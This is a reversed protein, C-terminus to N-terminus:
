PKLLTWLPTELVAALAILEDISANGRGAEILSIRSAPLGSRQALDNRSMWSGARGARLNRALVAQMQSLEDGPLGEDPLATDKGEIHEEM